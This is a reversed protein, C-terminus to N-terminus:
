LQLDRKSRRDLRLITKASYELVPLTQAASLGLALALASFVFLVSAFLARKAKLGRVFILLAFLGGTWALFLHSDIFPFGFKSGRGFPGVGIFRRFWRPSEPVRSALGLVFFVWALLVLGGVACGWFSSGPRHASGTRHEYFFVVLAYLLAALILLCASEPDGGLLLMALAIALELIGMPRKLRLLQDSASLGFPLWAAGVLYIVNAYQSLVPGSFAYGTSSLLAGAWGIELRRSLVLMAAFALGVHAVVYLRSAWAQSCVAFVIKAPYLVAATPNALLPSGGNEEPSWLPVRGSRWEREVREHLPYYYHAADRFAFQEGLFLVSRFAYALHVCLCVLGVLVVIRTKSM